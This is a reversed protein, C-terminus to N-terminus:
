WEDDESFIDAPIEFKMDKLYAKIAWSGDDDQWPRPRVVIKSRMIEASDIMYCSEEDLEVPSAGEQVMRIHIPFSKSYDYNVFVELM